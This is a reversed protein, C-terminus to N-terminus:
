PRNELAAVRRVLEDFDVGNVTRVNSVGRSLFRVGHVDVYGMGSLRIVDGRFDISCNGHNVISADDSQLVIKSGLLVDTLVNIMGGTIRCGEIDIASITGTRINGGNITTAGSESLDNFTVLGNFTISASAFEIGGSTLTLTSTRGNTSATLTFGNVTQSLSTIRGNAGSVQTQLGDATVALSSINGEADTIRKHVPETVSGTFREVSTRNMNRAMDLNRLTYRLNEELLFIYNQLETVRESLTGEQDMLM